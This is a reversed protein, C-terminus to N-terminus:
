AAQRHQRLLQLRTANIILKAHVRLRVRRHTRVWSPLECLGEAHGDAHASFREV